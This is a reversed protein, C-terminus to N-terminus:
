RKPPVVDPMLEPRGRGPVGPDQSKEMVRRAEAAKEPDVWQDKTVLTTQTPLAVAAGASELADMVQLIVNEQVSMFDAGDQTMVYAFIEVDIANEGMKVVRVRSTGDELRAHMRLVDRLQELAYRLHDATLDYRLRVTQRLLIKDRLRYNELTATAVTGNPISVITRDVTRLKTSRLGIDEIVGLQDGIRCYDGVVVAKDTLISIGGLLNEFTKQAGLGIALGGIGLGALAAPIPVNLARLVFLGIVIFIGINLARRFLSILSREALLGRDSLRNWIRWSLWYIARTLAWYLAVGLLIYILDFYYQRYLLSTGILYVFNYHILIAVLLTGPGFRRRRRREQLLPLGRVRRLLQRAARGLHGIIWALGLAIPALLIVALWQWLPMGLVRVKVLFPPLQREVQPFRLSDYVEAVHELTQRSILWGRDGHTGLEARILQFPFSEGTSGIGGVVIQERTSQPTDSTSDLSLAFRANLIALLQAAVEKDQQPSVRRRPEFYQIADDYDERQAARIFGMVTGRPTERGLGLPDSPVFDQAVSAAQSSSHITQASLQLWGGLGLVSAFALVRIKWGTKTVM